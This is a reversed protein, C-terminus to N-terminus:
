LGAWGRGGCRLDEPRGFGSFDLVRTARYHEETWVFFLVGGKLVYSERESSEGLRFLFREWAFRLLTGQFDGERERAIRRLKVQLAVRLRILEETM